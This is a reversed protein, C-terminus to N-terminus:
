IDKHRYGVTGSPSLILLIKFYSILLIMSIIFFLMFLLKFFESMLHKSVLIVQFSIYYFEPFFKSTSSYFTESTFVLVLLMPTFLHLLYNRLFLVLIFHCFKLFTFFHSFLLYLLSPFFICLCIIHIKTPSFMFLPVSSFSFFSLDPFSFFFVNKFSSGPVQSLQNLIALIM